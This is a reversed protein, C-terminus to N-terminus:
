TKHVKALGYLRAPHSGTRRLKVFLAEDIRVEAKLKKLEKVIRVNEKIVPNKANKM